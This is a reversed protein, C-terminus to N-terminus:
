NWDVKYGTGLITDLFYINSFSLHIQEPYLWTKTVQIYKKEKLTVKYVETKIKGWFGMESRKNGLEQLFLQLWDSLM